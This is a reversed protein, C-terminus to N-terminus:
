KENEYMIQFHSMNSLLMDNLDNKDFHSLDVSELNHAETIQILSHSGGCDELKLKICWGDGFDYNIILCNDKDNLSVVNHVQEKTADYRKIINVDLSSTDLNSNPM